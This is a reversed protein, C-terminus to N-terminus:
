ARKSLSRKLTEMQTKAAPDDLKKLVLAWFVGLVFGLFISFLVVLTRPPFSHNDPVVARDVVQVIAGQRAEDVKAIEYQRAMLDFITEYYRVNRLKQIYETSSAQLNGKSLFANAPNSAGSALKAEQAQLGALQQEAIQLQPNDGTAYSRIAEIEVQKAAIQARLDAAFSIASRAQADLQLVGTKQETLRLDAEAKALNDKAQELQQEFFLRRQSAETVALTASFKKFEDVYGNALAEARQPSRDWVSIRILGDKSGDDISVHNEFTKRAASKLKSHYLDMLHFRDVMADEVTRSKLFAVQLDNPNKLGLSGGALSGLSGLSGLQSMLAAGVSSNQQPPLISTVATYHVPLVLALIIGVVTACIAIKVVLWRRQSVVLLMDFLSVEEETPMSFDSPRDREATAPPQLEEIPNVAIYTRVSAFDSPTQAANASWRVLGQRRTWERSKLLFPHPRSQQSATRQM